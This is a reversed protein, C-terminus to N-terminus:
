TYKDRRAASLATGNTPLGLSESLADALEVGIEGGAVVAIPRYKEVEQLTRRFSGSHVINATYDALSFTSRYVAPVDVTSQVRVCEYGASRFNPALRRSPAYDDVIVVNGKVQM